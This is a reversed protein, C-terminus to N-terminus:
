SLYLWATTGAALSSGSVTAVTISTIAATSRWAVLSNHIVQDAAATAADCYGSRWLGTKQFATGAYGPIQIDLLGAVGATASAGPMDGPTGAEALWEDQANKINVFATTDTGWMDQMDYHSGGDGNVQVAWRDQEAANASAGIVILRLLSYGSPLSGSAPLTISAAAGSLTKSLFYGPLAGLNALATSTSALDSLNNAVQAFTGASDVAATGLGLNTRATSASALDSLNNATQAVASSALTAASGLGLNTRSTAASAVDSLNNSPLLGVHVHKADAAKGSSGAAASAGVPQIDGATGDLELEGATTTSGTPVPDFLPM